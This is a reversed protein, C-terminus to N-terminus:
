FTTQSDRSRTPTADRVPVVSPAMAETHPAHSPLPLVSEESNLMSLAAARPPLQSMSTAPPSPRHRLVDTAGHPQHGSQYEGTREDQRPEEVPHAGPFTRAPLHQQRGGQEAVAGGVETQDRLVDPPEHEDPDREDNRSVQLDHAAVVRDLGAQDDGCRRDAQQDRRDGGLAEGLPVCLAGEDKRTEDERDGADDDSQPTPAMSVGDTFM